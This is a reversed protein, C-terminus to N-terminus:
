HDWFMIFSIYLAMLNIPSPRPLYRPRRSDKGYLSYKLYLSTSFKLIYWPKIMDILVGLRIFTM